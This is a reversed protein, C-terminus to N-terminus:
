HFRGKIRPRRRGLTPQGSKGESSINTFRILPIPNDDDGLPLHRKEPPVADLDVLGIVAFEAGVDWHPLQHGLLSSVELSNVVVTPCNECFWGLTDSGSVFSDTVKKGRRTVIMYTQYSKRLPGGCRPCSGPQGKFERYVCERPQSIDIDNKMQRM